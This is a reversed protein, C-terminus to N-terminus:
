FIDEFLVEIQKLLGTQREFPTKYANRLESSFLWLISGINLKTMNIMNTM